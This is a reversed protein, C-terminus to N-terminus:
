YLDYIATLLFAAVPIHFLGGTEAMRGMENLVNQNPNLKDSFIGMGKPFPKNPSRQFHPMGPWRKHGKVLPAFPKESWISNLAPVVDWQSHCRSCFLSMRAMCSTNVSYFPPDALLILEFSGLPVDPSIINACDHWVKLSSIKLLVLFGSWPQHHSRSPAM